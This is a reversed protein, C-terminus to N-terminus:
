KMFSEIQSLYTANLTIQASIIRVLWLVCYFTQIQIIGNVQKERM